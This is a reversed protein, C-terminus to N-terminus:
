ELVRRKLDRLDLHGLDPQRGPDGLDILGKFRLALYDCLARREAELVAALKERGPGAAEKGGGTRSAELLKGPIAARAKGALRALHEVEQRKEGQDLRQKAEGQKEERQRRLGEVKEFLTRRKTELR